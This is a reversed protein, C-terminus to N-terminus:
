SEDEHGTSNDGKGAGHFNGRGAGSPVIPPRHDPCNHSVTGCGQFELARVDLISYADDINDTVPDDDEAVAGPRSVFVPEGPIHHEDCTYEHVVKEIVDCKMLKRINTHFGTTAYFYRYRKGNFSYNIRPLEMVYSADFMPDSTLDVVVEQKSRSTVMATASTDPLTILDQGIDAEEVSLPLVFRAFHPHSEMTQEENCLSELYLEKIVKGDKYLCVDCVIFGGEEYCNIFHFVFGHPARYTIPVKQGTTKNLVIFNLTEGPFSLISDELSNGAIKLTMLKTVNLAVPQELHIFYNESMGFSHTYSINMKWRSAASAVIEAQKFLEKEVGGPPIRIFNYARPYAMCTGYYYMTGDEGSHPHATGIHVAVFSRVDIQDKKSLTDLTVENILTSETLAFIRDGFEVINVATNDYKAPPRPIFYSFLRSFISKCPDPFSSGFNDGVLRNFKVCKKYQETDLISSLYTVKGQHITWRHIVALGDFAHSWRTDGMKYIGSGCRYLSGYLWDPLSGTLQTVVPQDLHATQDLDFYQPLKKEMTELGQRNIRTYLFRRGPCSFYSVLRIHQM